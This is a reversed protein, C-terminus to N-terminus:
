RATSANRHSTESWIGRLTTRQESLLTRAGRKISITQGASPQGIRHTLPSLGHDHLVSIAEAVHSGPVEIVAGLEESFLVGIDSGPLADLDIDLGVGSAFAMELLSVM